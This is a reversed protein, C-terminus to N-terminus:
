NWGGWGGGGGKLDRHSEHKKMYVIICMYSMICMSVHVTNLNM